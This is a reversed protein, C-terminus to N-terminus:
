KVDLTLGLHPLGTEAQTRLCDKLDAATPFMSGDRVKIYRNVDVGHTGDHIVRVDATGDPLTGKEIAGLSAIALRHTGSEADLM